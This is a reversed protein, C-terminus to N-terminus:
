LLSCRFGTIGLLSIGKFKELESKSRFGTYLRRGGDFWGFPTIPISPSFKSNVSRPIFIIFLSLYGHFFSLSNFKNSPSVIKDIFLLEVFPIVM